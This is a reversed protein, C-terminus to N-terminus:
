EVTVWRPDDPCTVISHGSLYEDIVDTEKTAIVRVPKYKTIARQGLGFFDKINKFHFSQIGVSFLAKDDIPAGNWTIKGVKQGSLSVEFRLGGSFQYHETDSVFSEPRFIHKIMRKLQAGDIQIRYVEHNFPYIENLDAYEIIPGLRDKRISGSGVLMIDLGLSDRLVDTFLRGLETERDRRPHTLERDLRTVVRKFKRDTVTQYGKIIKEIATDRPCNEENIPVLQWSYSDIANREKDVLIDFRGIQDTGTVAQVIPIGNIVEPQELLTHSHGGIIIDIGWRPDLIEALRRDDIIGIHTLLVTLDIDETRYSDCIKGIEQAAEHVDVLTGILAEQRTQALVEETMIGIFLIRIGGTELIIHSRFLRMQSTNIYINSNIIPFHACKELFLLHGLGYDVEHNGLTVVDPALMNMIEITSLGKYESDILSGQFMDGSIAYLVNEEESRTKQVYGSLMSLGGVLRDDVQQATFDGHMDNSHLLTLKKLNKDPSQNSMRNVGKM